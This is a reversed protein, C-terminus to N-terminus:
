EAVGVPISAVSFRESKWIIDGEENKTPFSITGNKTILNKIITSGCMKWAFQKTKEKKYCLDIVIECLEDQDPCIKACEALFRNDIVSLTSHKEDDSLKEANMEVMKERLVEDYENMLSRVSNFHSSSYDAGGKLISYDFPNDAKYNMLYGDFENEIMRCIRNMVCDGLGVPMHRKYKQLFEFQVDTLDSAPLSLMEDVSMGYERMANKNTSRIYTSYQKSLSPYVYKMFYPKKDSIISKYFRRDDEPMDEGLAHRDYWSRPMPTSVIGKAKDIAEQQFAQTCRIRYVLKNYEDSQPNFHSRVEYMATGKNTIQGVENGFSAINSKIFDSESPVIKEGKKQACMLTPLNKQRRLLVPNDTLMVLDGDYDMGNMASMENSWASIVTCSKMYRFWHRVEDSKAVSVRRVNEACSMPARFALVETADSDAWYANYIERSKLLGTIPLNFVGQCLAYLDGSATSYNGHVKLVGVKADNIRKKIMSHISSQVFPDHILKPEIMLAKQWDDDLRMVNKDDLGMGKLYLVTKAWDRGLADKIESVTPEVLEAIDDDTMEICQLFQYNTTRESELREVCVKTVAFSYGNKYSASLWEECSGYSDWLKVMSVPLVLDVDRIDIDNGWADKVIYNHAVTEAFEDFPFAYVMGKTWAMRICCGSMNYSLSLDRSWQEAFSPLIMGCGDSATITVVETHPDSVKPEGDGDNVLNIIDDEFSTEVDNVVLVGRPRSVPTSASCTLARYAELKAPIFAKDPNRSNDIRVRLNDAVRESVFVITSMKIGGPTGLLRVYKVGNITFGKCARVYDSVKDIILCMYDEKFQLKDLDSYLRRILKGTAPSSHELRATRIEDKIRRAQEDADVVGNIEDIWRLVQSSALSIVEGNRRADALSISLNWKCKRLRSSHLKFM